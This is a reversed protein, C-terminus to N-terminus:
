LAYHFNAEFRNAVLKSSDRCYSSSLGFKLESCAQSWSRVLYRLPIQGKNTVTRARRRGPVKKELLLEATASIPSREAVVSM